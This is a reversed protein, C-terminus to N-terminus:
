VFLGVCGFYGVIVLCFSAIVLCWACGFCVLVCFVGFCVDRYTFWICTFGVFAVYYIFLLCILTDLLGSLDLSAVSNVFCDVWVDFM